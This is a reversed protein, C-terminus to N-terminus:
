FVYFIPNSPALNTEKNTDIKSDFILQLLM